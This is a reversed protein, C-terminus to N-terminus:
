GQHKLDRFINDPYFKSRNQKSLEKIIIEATAKSQDALKRAQKFNGLMLTLFSNLLIIKGFLVVFIFFLNAKWENISRIGNYWVYNWNDGIMVQLITTIGWLMDDFNSRQNFEMELAGEFLWRAVVAATIMFILMVTLLNIIQNVSKNIATILIRYNSWRTESDMMWFLRIGKLASLVSMRELYFSVTVLSICDVLIEFSLRYFSSQWAILQVADELIFIM